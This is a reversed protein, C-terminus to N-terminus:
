LCGGCCGEPVNENVVETIEDKLDKLDDPVIVTWSGNSIWSDEWHNDFGCGGGSILEFDTRLQGNVKLTLTGSCLNPWKGTYSVFKVKNM